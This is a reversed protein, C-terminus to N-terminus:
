HGPSAAAALAADDIETRCGQVHPRLAFSHPDWGRGALFWSVWLCLPERIIKDWKNRRRPILGVARAHEGPDCGAALRDPAVRPVSGDPYQAVRAYRLM